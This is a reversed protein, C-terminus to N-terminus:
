KSEPFYKPIFPLCQGWKGGLVSCLRRLMTASSPHAKLHALKDPSLAQQAIIADPDGLWMVMDNSVVQRTTSAQASITDKRDLVETSPAMFDNAITTTKSEKEREEFEMTKNDVVAIYPKGDKHTVRLLVEVKEGNSRVLQATEYTGSLTDTARVIGGDQHV